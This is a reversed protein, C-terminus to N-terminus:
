QVVGRKKHKLPLVLTFLTGGQAPNTAEITGGHEEIIRKCIALGLGTGKAKTTVFPQFITAMVEQQIGKGSDKIDIEITEESPRSTIVEITGGEPMAEIANLFINLIVQQLQASDAELQPLDAAYHKIFDVGQRSSIKGTVSLNQIAYDLLKNLDFLEYHLQPPRAYNLLGKLLKEVRNTENIVRSFLEQDEENLDLEDALVELSVKIGALPNKIEHALGAAMEGVLAMQNARQMELEEKKRQSIDRSFVLAYKQEGMDLLGVSVEALFLSGDKKRREVEYQLWSGSLACQLREPCQDDCSFDKINMGLLEEVQYGHMTAAASNISIIQGERDEALDLIFIGDGASEFLAQYLKRAALLDQQQLKLSSSMSNFSDALQKFEYKLNKDVRYDLNGKKLINAAKVLVEVSGTFRKLFYATLLLIAIPGVIVLFIVLHKVKTIDHYLTQSRLPFEGSINKLFNEVALSFEIGKGLVDTALVQYGESEPALNRIQNLRSTYSDSLTQLQDLRALVGKSYECHFCSEITKKLGAIDTELLALDSTQPLNNFKLESQVKEIGHQLAGIADHAQHMTVARELQDTADGIAYIIYSGGILFCILMITLGQLVQRKM